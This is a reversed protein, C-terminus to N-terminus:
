HRGPFAHLELLQVVPQSPCCEHLPPQQLTGPPEGVPVHWGPSPPPAPPQPVAPVIQSTQSAPVCSVPVGSVPVGSVPVGSVPVASVPVGSVPVGSVPVVSVPVASVPNPLQMAIHGLPVLQVFPVVQQELLQGPPPGIGCVQWGGGMPLWVTPAQQVPLMSQQLLLQLMLPEVPTHVVPAHEALVGHETGLRHQPGVSQQVPAQLAPLTHWTESSPCGHQASASQLAPWQQLWMLPM